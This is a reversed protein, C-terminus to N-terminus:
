MTALHRAFFGSSRQCLARSTVVSSFHSAEVWSIPVADVAGGVTRDAGAIRAGITKAAATAIPSPTTADAMMTLRREDVGLRSTTREITVVSGASCSSASGVSSVVLSPRGLRVDIAQDGSPCDIANLADNPPRRCNYTRARFWSSAIGTAPVSPADFGNKEGSPLHIPKKAWRASRFTATLPPGGVVM